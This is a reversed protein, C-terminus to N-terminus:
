YGCDSEDCAEFRNVGDTEPEQELWLDLMSGSVHKPIFGGQNLTEGSVPANSDSAFVNISANSAIVTM